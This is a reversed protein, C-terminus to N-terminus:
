LVHFILSGIFILFAFVSLVIGAVRAFSPNDKGFAALLGIIGVFLWFENCM